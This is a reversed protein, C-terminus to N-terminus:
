KPQIRRRPGLQEALLGGAVAEGDQSQEDFFRDIEKLSELSFDARYGSSTLANAVWNAYPQADEILTAM